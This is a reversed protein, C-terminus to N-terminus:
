SLTGSTVLPLLIMCGLTVRTQLFGFHLCMSLIILYIQICRGRWGLGRTKVPAATKKKILYELRMNTNVVKLFSELCKSLNLFLHVIKLQFLVSTCVM